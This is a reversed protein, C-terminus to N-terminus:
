DGEEVLLPIEAVNGRGVAQAVRRIDRIVQYARVWSAVSVAVVFSGAALAQSGTITFLAVSYMATAAGLIIIGAVETGLRAVLKSPAFVGFLGIVGGAILLLHWLSQLWSPMASAVSRPSVGTITLSIGVVIAAALTLVEFPHRGSAVVVPRIPRRAEGTGLFQDM